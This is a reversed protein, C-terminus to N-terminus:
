LCSFTVGRNGLQSTAPPGTPMPTPTPTAAVTLCASNLLFLFSQLRAVRIKPLIKEPCSEVVTKATSNSGDALGAVGDAMASPRIM